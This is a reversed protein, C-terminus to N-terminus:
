KWRTQFWRSLWGLIVAGVAIALERLTPADM